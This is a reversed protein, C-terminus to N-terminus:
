KTEPPLFISPDLPDKELEAFNMNGFPTTYYKAKQEAVKGVNTMTM